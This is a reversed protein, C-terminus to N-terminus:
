KSNDPRDYYCNIISLQCNVILLQCNIIIKERLQKENMIRLQKECASSASKVLNGCIAGKLGGFPSFSNMKM